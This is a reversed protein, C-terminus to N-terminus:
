PFEPGAGEIGRIIAPIEPKGTRRLRSLQSEEVSFGFLSGVRIVTFGDNAM